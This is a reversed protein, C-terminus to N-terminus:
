AVPGFSKVGILAAASMPPNPDDSMGRMVPFM